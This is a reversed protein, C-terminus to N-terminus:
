AGPGPAPARPAPGAFNTTLRNRFQESNIEWRPHFDYYRAIDVAEILSPIISMKRPTRRRRERCYHFLCRRVEEEFFEPEDLDLPEDEIGRLFLELNRM